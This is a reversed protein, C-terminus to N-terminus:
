PQKSVTLWLDATKATLGPLPAQAARAINGDAARGLIRIPGSRPGGAEATLVLKVAAATEGQPLSKIAACAVGEPLGAPAIEIEGAFGFRRAITVPVELPTGPTLTFADAALSLAFDPTAARATLRYVYRFGGRRHLDSVLLRLEGEAAATYNLEADPGSQSDDVRGLVKGEADTLTLVPDAQCGLSRSEVRFFLAEGAKARFRYADMDGAPDLRGSVTIPLELPQPQTADNPEADVAVANPALAIEATNGALTHWVTQLTVAEFSPSAAPQIAAATGAPINWGLLEVAVPSERSIALPFAHDIFGGTTLTLRYVCNAGGSLSISTDPEAPFSFARVLYKGAAPATFVVRPDLGCADDNQELVFGEASLVQLVGDLPSGLTRRAELAAVLTQGAALEVAFVDVDGRSEFRGNVTISPSEISQPQRPENNPEAEALEPLLEILFPRLASTGEDDYLRLWCVGPAADAPVIVKLKGSEAEPSVAIETRATWIKVPWREFAGGATVTVTAGRAAGAPFLHDLKPPAAQAALPALCLLLCVTQRVMRACGAPM